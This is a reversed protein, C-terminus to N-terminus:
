SQKHCLNSGYIDMFILMKRIQITTTEKRSPFDLPFTPCIENVSFRQGECPQWECRPELLLHKAPILWFFSTETDAKLLLFQVIVIVGSPFHIWNRLQIFPNTAKSTPTATAEVDAKCNQSALTMLVVGDPDM